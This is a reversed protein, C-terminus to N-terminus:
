SGPIPAFYKQSLVALFVKIQEIGPYNLCYPDLDIYLCWTLLLFPFIPKLNKLIPLSLPCNLNLITPKSKRVTFHQRRILTICIVHKFSLCSLALPSFTIISFTYYALIEFHGM